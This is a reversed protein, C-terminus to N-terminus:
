QYCYEGDNESSLGAAVVHSLKFISQVAQRRVLPRGDLYQQLHLDDEIINVKMKMLPVLPRVPSSRPAGFNASRPRYGVGVGRIWTGDASRLYAPQAGGTLWDARPIGTGRLLACRHTAGVRALADERRLSPPERPRSRSRWRAAPLAQLLVSRLVSARPPRLIM